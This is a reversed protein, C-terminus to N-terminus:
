VEVTLGGDVHGDLVLQGFGELGDPAVDHGDTGDQTQVAHLGNRLVVEPGGFETIDRQLQLFFVFLDRGLFRSKQLHDLVAVDGLPTSRQLTSGTVLYLM